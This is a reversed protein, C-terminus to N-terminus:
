TEVSVKQESQEAIAYNSSECPPAKKVPSEDLVFDDPPMAPPAQPMMLPTGKVDLHMSELLDADQERMLLSVDEMTLSASRETSTLRQADLMTEAFPM